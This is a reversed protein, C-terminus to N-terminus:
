HGARNPPGAEAPYEVRGTRSQGATTLRKRAHRILQIAFALFLGVVAGCSGFATTADTFEWDYLYGQVWVVIWLAMGAAAGAFTGLALQVIRPRFGGLVSGIWRAEQRHWRVSAFGLLIGVFAGFPPVFWSAIIPWTRNSFWMDMVAVLLFGAVTGALGGGWVARSSRIRWAHRLLPIAFGLLFGVVAGFAPVVVLIAV